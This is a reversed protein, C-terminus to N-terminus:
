LKLYQWFDQNQIKDRRTEKKISWVYKVEAAQLRSFYVKVCINITEYWRDVIIGSFLTVESFVYNIFKMFISM